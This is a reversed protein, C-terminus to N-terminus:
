TLLHPWKGTLATRLMGAARWQETYELMDLAILGVVQRLEDSPSSYDLDSDGVAFNVADALPITLHYREGNSEIM